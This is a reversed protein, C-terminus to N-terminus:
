VGMFQDLDHILVMSYEVDDPDTVQEALVSGLEVLLWSYFMFRYQPEQGLDVSDIQLIGEADAPTHEFLQDIILYRDAKVPHM